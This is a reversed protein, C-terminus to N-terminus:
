EEAQLDGTKMAMVIKGLLSYEEMTYSSGRAEHHLTKVLSCILEEEQKTRATIILSHPEYVSETTKASIGFEIEM